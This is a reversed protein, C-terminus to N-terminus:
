RSPKWESVPLPKHPHRSAHLYHLGLAVLLIGFIIRLGHEPLALAIKSGSYAGLVAGLALSPVLARQVNGLRLNEWTGSLVAPLRALLSCGQALQQPMGLGLVFLPALVPGGSIGIVGAVLGEVIGVALLYPVQLTAPITAGVTAIDRFIVLLGGMVVVAGFGARLRAAPWRESGAAALPTILLAPVAVWLVVRIDLMGHAAYTLSAVSATFLSVALATGRAALPNMGAWSMLMPIVLTGGGLSVLGGGIGAILGIVLGQRHRHWDFRSM